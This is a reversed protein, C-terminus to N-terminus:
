GAYLQQGYCITLTNDCAPWNEIAGMPFESSTIPPFLAIVAM